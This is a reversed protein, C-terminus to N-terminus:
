APKIALRAAAIENGTPHELNPIHITEKHERMSPTQTMLRETGLSNGERIFRALDFVFYHMPYPEISKPDPNKRFRDSARAREFLIERHLDRVPVFEDSFPGSIRCSTHAAKLVRFFGERSFPTKELSARLNRIHTFLKDGDSEKSRELEVGGLTIAALAGVYEIRFIDIRDTQAGMVAPVNAVLAAQHLRERRMQLNAENQERSAKAEIEIATKLTAWDFQGALRSAEQIEKAFEPKGFARSKIATGLVKCLKQLTAAGSELGAGNADSGNSIATNEDSMRKIQNASYRKRCFLLFVVPMSLAINQGIGGNRLVESREPLGNVALKDRNRPAAGRRALNPAFAAM